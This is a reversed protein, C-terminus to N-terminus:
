PTKTSNGTQTESKKKDLREQVRKKAMNIRNCCSCNKSDPSTISFTKTDEEASLQTKGTAVFVYVCVTLLFLTGIALFFYKKKM